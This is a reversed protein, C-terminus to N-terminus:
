VRGEREGSWVGFECFVKFVLMMEVECFFYFGFYMIFLVVRFVLGLGRGDFWSGM